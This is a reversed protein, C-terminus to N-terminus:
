SVYLRLFRRMREGTGKPFSRFAVALVRWLKWLTQRRRQWRLATQRSNPILRALSLLADLRARDAALWAVRLEYRWLEHLRRRYSAARAADRVGALARQRATWIGAAVRAADRSRQAPHLRYRATIAATGIFPAHQALRLWLDYDEAFAVDTHESYGGVAALAAPRVIAAAQAVYNHLLLSPFADYPQGTPFDLTSPLEVEGFTEVRSFAVGAAPHRELLAVVVECHNPLWIDDADLFAVADGTVATIGLNRAAGPGSRASTRFYRVDASALLGPSGDTSCDDVVIVEHVARTQMRVSALADDIFAAANYCPIVVSVRL